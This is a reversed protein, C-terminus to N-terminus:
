SSTSKLWGIFWFFAFLLGMLGFVTMVKKPASDYKEM